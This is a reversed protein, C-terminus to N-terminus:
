ATKTAVEVWRADPGYAVDVRKEFGLVGVYFDLARDQDTVPVGVMGVHTICPVGGTRTDDNVDDGEGRPAPGVSAIGASAADIVAHRHSM